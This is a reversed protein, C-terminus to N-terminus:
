ASMPCKSLKAIIQFVPKLILSKNLNQPSLFHSQFVFLLHWFSLFFTLSPDPIPLKKLMLLFITLIVLKPCPSMQFQISCNKINDNLFLVLSKLAFKKKKKKQNIKIARPCSKPPPIDSEMNSLAQSIEAWTHNPFGIRM